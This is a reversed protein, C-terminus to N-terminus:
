SYLSKLRRPTIEERKVEPKQVPGRYKSRLLIGQVWRAEPVMLTVDDRLTVQLEFQLSESERGYAFVKTNAQFVKESEDGSVNTAICVPKTCSMGSFIPVYGLYEVIFDRVALVVVLNKQSLALYRKMKEETASHTIEAFGLRWRKVLSNIIAYFGIRTM